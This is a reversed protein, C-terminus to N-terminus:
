ADSLECLSEGIGLLERESLQSIAQMPRRMAVRGPVDLDMEAKGITIM